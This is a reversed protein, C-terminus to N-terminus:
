LSTRGLNPGPCVIKKGEDTLISSARGLGDGCQDQDRFQLNSLVFGVQPRRKLWHSISDKSLTSLFWFLARDVRCPFLPNLCGGPGVVM